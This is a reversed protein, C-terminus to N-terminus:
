FVYKKNNNGQTNTNVTGNNKTQAKKAGGVTAAASARASASSYNNENKHTRQCGPARLDWIRVTGDESASFLWKGDRQFGVATVNGKHTDYSAIPQNNNSNIVDYVRVHPNGGSALFMKDRTIELCNVQSEPYQITRYCVGSSAEWFRITHDYGATALIVSPTTNAHQHHHSM